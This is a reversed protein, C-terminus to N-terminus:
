GFAGGSIDFAAWEPTGGREIVARIVAACIRTAEECVSMASQQGRGAVRVKDSAAGSHVLSSRMQYAAAIMNRRELM